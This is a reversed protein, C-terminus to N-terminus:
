DIVADVHIREAAHQELHERSAHREDRVARERPPRAEGSPSRWRARRREHRIQRALEVLEDDRHHRLIRRRSRRERPRCPRRARSARVASPSRTRRARAERSASTSPRVAPRPASTAAATASFGCPTTSRPAPTSAAARRCRTRRPAPATTMKGAGAGTAPGFPSPPRRRWRAAGAFGISTAGGDLRRRVGPAWRRAVAAPWGGRRLSRDSM